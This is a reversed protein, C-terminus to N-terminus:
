LRSIRLFFSGAAVFTDIDISPDRSSIESLFPSYFIEKTITDSVSLESVSFTTVTLRLESSYGGRYSAQPSCPAGISAINFRREAPSDLERPIIIGRGGDYNLFIIGTFSTLLRRSLFILGFSCFHFFNFHHFHPVDRFNDWLM